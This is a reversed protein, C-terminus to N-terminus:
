GRSADSGEGHSITLYQQAYGVTYEYRTTEGDGDVRDLVLPEEDPMGIPNDRCEMDPEPRSGDYVLCYMQTGTMTGVWLPVDGDYGVVALSRGDFGAEVLSDAIALEEPNAYMSSGESPAVYSYAIVAPDGRSSLFLQADVRYRVDDADDGEGSTESLSGYVGGTLVQERTSCTPATKVGDGLILCINTGDRQTAYWVVTDREIAVARISGTDYIGSAILDGQWGQQDASLQPATEGGRDGFALWGCLIGVGIFAVITLAVALGRRALLSRLSPTDAQPAAGEDSDSGAAPTPAAPTPAAPTPATPTPATTAVTVTASGTSPRISSSGVSAPSDMTGTPAPNARTRVGEIKRLRAAEADTLGGARGYAKAQLARLERIDDDAM